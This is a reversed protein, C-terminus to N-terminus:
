PGVREWSLLHGREFDDAFLLVVIDLCEPNTIIAGPEVVVGDEQPTSQGAVGWLLAPCGNDIESDADVFVGYNTGAAGGGGYGRVTLPGASRLIGGAALTAGRNDGEGYGGYARIVLAGASDVTGLVEVGDNMFGDIGGYGTISISGGAALNAIEVGDHDGGVGSGAWGMITVSGGISSALLQAEVGDNDGASGAGAEGVITLDGGTTISANEVDVGDIEGVGASGAGTGSIVINGSASSLTTWAAEIVGPIGEITVGSAGDIAAGFVSVGNRETGGVGTLFVGGGTAILNRAGLLLGYHGGGAGTGATGEFVLDGPV